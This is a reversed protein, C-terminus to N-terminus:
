SRRHSDTLREVPSLFVTECADALGKRLLHRTPTGRDVPRSAGLLSAQWVLTEGPKIFGERKHPSMRANSPSGLRAVRAPETGPQDPDAEVDTTAQEGAAM